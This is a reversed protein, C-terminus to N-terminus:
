DQRTPLAAESLVSEAMWWLPEFVPDSLTKRSWADGQDRLFMRELWWSALNLDGLECAYRALHFAIGAEQAVPEIEPAALLFDYARRLGGEPLHRLAESASVLFDVNGPQERLLHQSIEWAGSWDKLELQLRLKLRLIEPAKRREMPTFDLSMTAAEFDGQKLWEETWMLHMMYDWEGELPETKVNPNATVAWHPLAGPPLTPILDTLRQHQAMVGALLCDTAARTLALRQSIFTLFTLGEALHLGCNKLAVVIDCRCQGVPPEECLTFVRQTLALLNWAHTTPWGARRRAIGTSCPHRLHHGLELLESVGLESIGFHEAVQTKLASDPARRPLSLEYEVLAKACDADSRAPRGFVVELRFWMQDSRTLRLKGRLPAPPPCALLDPRNADGSGLLALSEAPTLKLRQTVAMKLHQQWWRDSIWDPTRKAEPGDGTNAHTHHLCLAKVAEATEKIISSRRDLAAKFWLFEADENNFVEVAPQAPREWVTPALAILRLFDSESMWLGGWGVRCGHIFELKGLAALAHLALGLEEESYRLRELMARCYALPRGDFKWPLRRPRNRGNPTLQPATPTATPLSM